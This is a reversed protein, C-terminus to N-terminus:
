EGGGLPQPTNRITTRRLVCLINAAGASYLPHVRCMGASGIHRLALAHTAGACFVLGLVVQSGMASEPLPWRTLRLRYFGPSFKLPLIGVGTLCQRPGGWKVRWLVSLGGCSRPYSRAPRLHLLHYTRDRLGACVPLHVRKDTQSRVDPRHGLDVVSARDGESARDDPQGLAAAHEFSGTAPHHSVDTQGPVDFDCLGSGVTRQPGIPYWGRVLESGYAGLNLGVAVFGVYFKDLTLGFLPLVFFIWYLQVLLSTGEFYRLIFCTRYGKDHSQIIVEHAGATLACMIALIASLFFQTATMITGDIFRPGQESLFDLYSMHIDNWYEYLQLIPQM